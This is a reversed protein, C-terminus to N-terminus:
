WFNSLGLNNGVVPLNSEPKLIGDFINIGQNSLEVDFNSAGFTIDRGGDGNNSQAQPM